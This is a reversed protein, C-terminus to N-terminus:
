DDTGNVPVEFSDTRCHNESSLAVREPVFALRVRLFEDCITDERHRSSVRTDRMRESVHLWNRFSHHIHIINACGQLHRM